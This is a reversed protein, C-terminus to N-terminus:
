HLEWGAIWTLQHIDELFINTNEPELYKQRQLIKRWIVHDSDITSM